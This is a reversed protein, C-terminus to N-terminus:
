PEQCWKIVFVNRSHKGSCHTNSLLVKTCNLSKNGLCLIHIFVEKDSPDKVEENLLCCLKLPFKHCLSATWSSLLLITTEIDLFAPFLLLQTLLTYTYCLHKKQRRLNDNHAKEKQRNKAPTDMTPKHTHTVKSFPMAKLPLKSYPYQFHHSFISKTQM